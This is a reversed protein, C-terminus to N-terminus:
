ERITTAATDVLVASWSFTAGGLGEGTLPHYYEWFGTQELLTMSLAALEDSLDHYGYRRLGKYVLWNICPWVNGRWYTDPAFTEADTPSTTIPFPTWFRASQLQRVLAEAQEPTPLGGFLTVLQGASDQLIPREDAGELDYPKGDIMMKAQFAQRM